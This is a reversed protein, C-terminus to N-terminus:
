RAYGAPISYATAPAAVPPAAPVVAGGPGCPPPCCPANTRVNQRNCCGCGVSGIASALLLVLALNRLM